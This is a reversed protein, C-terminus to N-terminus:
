RELEAVDIQTNRTELTVMDQWTPMASPYCRMPQNANSCAVKRRLCANLPLPSNAYRLPPERGLSASTSRDHCRRDLTKQNPLPSFEFQYSAPMSLHLFQHFLSFSCSTQYIKDDRQYSDTAKARIPFPRSLSSHPEAVELRVSRLHENRDVCGHIMWLIRWSQM